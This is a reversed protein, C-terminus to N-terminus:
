VLMKAEDEKAKIEEVKELKRKEMVEDYKNGFRKKEQAM